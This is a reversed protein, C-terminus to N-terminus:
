RHSYCEKERHHLPVGGTQGDPGPEAEALRRPDFEFNDLVRIYPFGATKTRREIGRREKDLFELELLHLLNDDFGAEKSIHEQFGALLPLKLQRALREIMAQREENTMIKEGGVLRDYEKLDIHEGTIGASIRMREPPLSIDLYFCVLQYTPAGSTNAM